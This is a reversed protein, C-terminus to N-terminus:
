QPNPPVPTDQGTPANADSRQAISRSESMPPAAAPESSEALRKLKALGKEYDAGIFREFLLGSYRGVLDWGFETDFAWAIRTGNAEPTLTMTSTAQGQSGFDLRNTVQRGPEVAIVEQSGHGVKPDDSDWQFRAGVGNPPGSYTYTTKPDLEAWPSWENFRQFGDVLRYVTDASATTTISRAVHVREPLFLGVVAALVALGGVAVLLGKLIRM